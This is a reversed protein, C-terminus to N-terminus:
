EFKSFTLIEFNTIIRFKEFCQSEFNQKLKFITYIEVKSFLESEFFRVYRTDAPFLEDVIVLHALGM